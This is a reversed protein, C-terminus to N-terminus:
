RRAHSTIAAIFEDNSPFKSLRELLSPMAEEPKMRAFVRRLAHVGILENSDLLKEEKRTGTRNFDIAPFIRREALRRDLVLESNGTGKFEEFIFNDMRSGTDILATAVITVSGGKEINRALGFFQRPIELASSDLGGSMTRGSRPALRNFARGMRTLSDVIVVIDRGCELECRIHDLTLGVLAVHAEAKQDMSSALVDAKVARRFGTVEEPREDVLLVIIRIKPDEARVANAFHQLLTTKGAKPPSVILARTGKGIPAVLDVVRMSMEGFRALHFREDPDISVLNRFKKRKAFREPKLGCCSRVKSVVQRGNQEEVEADIRAGTVLHLQQIIPRPVVPDDPRAQLSFEPSRLVGKGNAVQLVGSVKAM